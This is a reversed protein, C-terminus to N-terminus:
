TAQSDGGHPIPHDLCGQFQYQLRDERAQNALLLAAVVIGAVELAYYMIQVYEPGKSGPLGGQDIVHVAAV